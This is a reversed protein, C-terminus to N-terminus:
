VSKSKIKALIFSIYTKDGSASIVKSAFGSSKVFSFNSIKLFEGILKESRGDGYVDATDFFTVGNDVAENLIKFANNKDIENGWNAGIQWCGLGVESVEFGNNGLTRNKM